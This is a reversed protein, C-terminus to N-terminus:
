EFGIVGEEFLRHILRLADLRPMASVDLLNDLSSVGDVRSLLFGAQHDIALARLQTPSVRLTPVKDLSGLRAVYDKELLRRCEEVFDRASEDNADTEVLEEALQLAGAYDGAFFKECLKARAPDSADLKTDVKVRARSSPHKTHEATAPPPQTPMESPAKRSPEDRRMTERAFGELDFPPPITPADSVGSIDETDAEPDWLPTKPQNNRLSM